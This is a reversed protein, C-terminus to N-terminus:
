EEALLVSELYVWADQEDFPDFFTYDLYFRFSQAPGAIQPTITYEYTRPGDSDAPLAGSQSDLALTESMNTTTQFARLRIQPAADATTATTSITVFLRYTRGERLTVEPSQLFAFCPFGMARIGYGTGMVWQEEAPEFPAVSTEATWGNQEAKFDWDAAGGTPPNPTLIYGRLDGNLTGNGCIQGNANVDTASKLLWGSGPPIFDNLDHMMGGSYIFAHRDNNADEFTSNGVIVDGNTASASSTTGGITGLDVASGGDPTMFAHSESDDPIRSGGVILGNDAIDNAISFTGGLDPIESAVGGSWKTAQLNPAQICSGVVVGASNIADPSAVTHAPLPNLV